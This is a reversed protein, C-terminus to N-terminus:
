FQNHMTGRRDGVGRRHWFSSGDERAAVPNRGFLRMVLGVPMIVLFYVISMFVPTTIRSLAHAFAMWVREVPLLWTPALLGGTLLLGAAVGVGVALREHGRWLAIAALVGFAIGVTLGFKRGQAANLRTSVRNAM